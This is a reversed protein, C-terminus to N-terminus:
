EYFKINLNLYGGPNNSDYGLIDQSAYSKLNLYYVSDIVDFPENVGEEISGLWFYLPFFGTRLTNAPIKFATAIIQGVVTRKSTICISGTNAIFENSDPRRLIMSFFINPIKEMVQIQMVVDIDKQPDIETNENNITIKLFRAKGTGRRSKIDKLFDDKSNILQSNDLYKKIAADSREFSVVKGESLLIINSCLQRIAGINHSVFLVTRGENKSVDEM